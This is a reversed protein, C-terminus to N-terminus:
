SSVFIFIFNHIPAKYVPVTCSKIPLINKSYEALISFILDLRTSLTGPQRHWLQLLRPNSGLLRQCLPIRTTATSATNFLTGYEFLSFGVKNKSSSPLIQLGIQFRNRRRIRVHSYRIRICIRSALFCVSGLSWSGSASGSGCCQRAGYCNTLM